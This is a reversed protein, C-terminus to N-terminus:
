LFMLIVVDRTKVTVVTTAKNPPSQVHKQDRHMEGVGLKQRM